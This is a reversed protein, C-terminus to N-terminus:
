TYDPEGYGNGCNFLVITVLMIYYYWLYSPNVSITEMGVMAVYNHITHSPKCQKKTCQKLKNVCKM